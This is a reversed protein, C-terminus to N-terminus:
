QDRPHKELSHSIYNPKFIFGEGCEPCKFRSEGTHNFFHGQLLKKNMFKKSCDEFSCRYMKVGEAIVNNFITLSITSRNIYFNTKSPSQKAHHHVAQHYLLNGKFNYHKPCLNCQFTEESLIFEPPPGRFDSHSGISEGDM